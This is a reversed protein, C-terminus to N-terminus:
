SARGGIDVGLGSDRGIAIAALRSRVGLKMFISQVHTRVTHRSICLRAAIADNDGGHVMQALVDSERDTLCDIADRRAAPAEAPLRAPRPRRGAVMAEVASVVETLDAQRHVWGAARARKVVERPEPHDGRMLLLLSADPAISRLWALRRNVQARSGDASVLAASIAGPVNPDGEALCISAVGRRTLSRALTEAVLRSEDVIALRGSVPAQPTVHATVIKRM